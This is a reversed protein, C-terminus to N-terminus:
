KASLKKAASKALKRQQAQFKNGMIGGGWESRVAVNDNFQIRLTTILNQLTNAHEKRVDGLAVVASTKKNVLHGLRAKGKIICYPIDMKRCLAPLWVVLELPDVDHAIVVLKAKKTEILHTVHNLGFKLVVPKKDVASSGEEKVEKGAKEALRKKKELSTEPRYEKLL